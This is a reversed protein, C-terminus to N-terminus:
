LHARCFHVTSLFFSVEAVHIQKPVPVKERVLSKYSGFTSNIKFFSKIHYHIINFNFKEFYFTSALFLLFCQMLM